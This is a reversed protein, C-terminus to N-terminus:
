LWFIPVRLLQGLPPGGISAPETFYRGGVVTIEFM